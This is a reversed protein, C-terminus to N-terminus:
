PGSSPRTNMSPTWRSAGARASRRDPCGWRDLSDTMAQSSWAGECGPTGAATAPNTARCMKVSGSTRPRNAIVPITGGFSRASSISSGHPQARDDHRVGHALVGGLTHLRRQIPIHLDDVVGHGLRGLVRPLPPRVAFACPFCVVGRSIVMQDDLVVRDHALV